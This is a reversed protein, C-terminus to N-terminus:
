GAREEAAKAAADEKKATSVANPTEDERFGDLPDDEPKVKKKRKSAIKARARERVDEKQKAVEEPKPEPTGDAKGIYKHGANFKKGDQVFYVASMSRKKIFPKDPDFENM